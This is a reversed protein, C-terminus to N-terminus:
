SGFNNYHLVAKTCTLQKTLHRSVIVAQIRKGRVDIDLTDNESLDSDLLALCIARMSYEDDLNESLQGSQTKRYPVMTGSTVYGVQRGDKFVNCGARAIGAGAVAVPRIMRPLNEILTFDNKTFRKFAEFQRSLAEKGIFDGKLQSFSVAFKALQCAFIPIQRGSFESGLEHGYLPLGAELRLTDRAGLGIPEAGHETLLDWIATGDETNIFLEFCVPEGTYGTRAISVPRGNITATSLSNRLPQPLLGSDLIKMLIEKSKPGQLSLMALEETRDDMEIHGFDKLITQFHQWDKRRNAANVVLLYEDEMFRYLYADDIAGGTNNGIFTYQSQGVELAAANNSLVHQLFALTEKGRFVFRGMHSVDFLGAEKRTTLHERVIGATYHIPMQYGAFEMLKAGHELHKDYFPTKQFQEM